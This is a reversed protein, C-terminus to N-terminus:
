KQHQLPMEIVFNCISQSTDAPSVHISGGPLVQRELQRAAARSCDAAVTPRQPQESSSLISSKEHHKVDHM